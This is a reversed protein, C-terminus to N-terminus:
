GTVRSGAFMQREKARASGTAYWRRAWTSTSDLYRRGTTVGPSATGPSGPQAAVRARFEYHTFLRMFETLYVDAVDTDGRIVLMNEDNSITSAKSFNASGTVVIPDDSLPDILLFKTHIYRVHKNAALTVERIWQGWGGKGIVAGVTVQNDPDATRITLQAGGSDTDLLVYKLYDRDKTLVTMLQPSIGFAATLFVGADARDALSGYWDLASVTSRPSFVTTTGKRLRKLPTTPRADNWPKLDRQFPNDVLHNWYDLYKAAVAPDRVTHGVNAQGFLGGETVNTSGTWVSVPEGDKCLVVFKNHAISIHTRQTILGSIGAAAAATETDERPGSGTWDAVIKVDAGAAAAVGFAQLVPVWSFEYVAARLAWGPGNAQGIFATMSEALGASLWTYAVNNAVQDPQRNGFREAYAQSAIVGRNFVVGHTGTDFSGTSVQVTQAAVPRLTSPTGALARIEYTYDHAPKATYDGWRFTQIPNDWSSYSDRSGSDRFGLQNRLWYRQGETHDTRRIAFGMLDTALGEDLDMGLLVSHDGSVAQVILPGNSARVRM